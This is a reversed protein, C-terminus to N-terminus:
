SIDAYNMLSYLAPTNEPLAGLFLIPFEMLQIIKPHKFFRRIHKHISTFVDMRFLALLLRMDAFEFISRSPKYVLDNIGVKYKYAAQALFQDLKAASGKELSELMAKFETLNAPIDLYDDAGFVVRYSPNLRVLEYYDSPKKGFKGFYSEFVDPMWYWSPGMDYTFGQAEFVRARGGAIDHKELITVEFGEHALNTAASIGAFGAGIVIVKKDM